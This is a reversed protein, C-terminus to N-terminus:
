EYYYWEHNVTKGSVIGEIDQAQREIELANANLLHAVEISTAFPLADGNRRKQELISLIAQKIKQKMFKDLEEVLRAKYLPLAEHILFEQVEKMFGTSPTCEGFGSQITMFVREYKSVFDIAHDICQISDRLKIAKELVEPKM